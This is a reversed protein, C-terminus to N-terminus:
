FKKMVSALMFVTKYAVEGDRVYDGTGTLKRVAVSVDFIRM